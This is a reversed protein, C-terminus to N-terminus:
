TGTSFTIKKVPPTELQNMVSITKKYPLFRNNHFNSSHFNHPQQNHEAMTGMCFINISGYEVFNRSLELSGNSEFSIFSIYKEYVM